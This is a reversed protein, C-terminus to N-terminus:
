RVLRRRHRSRIPEGLYYVISNVVRIDNQGQATGLLNFFHTHLCDITVRYGFAASLAYEASGGVAWAPYHAHGTTFGGSANPFPGAARAGGLLVHAHTSLLNGRWVTITPGALYSFVDARHGTNSVNPALTYSLDLKAGIRKGGDAAVSVDWGSLNIRGTTPLLLSTVSYGASANLVTFYAAAIPPQKTPRFYLSKPTQAPLIPL